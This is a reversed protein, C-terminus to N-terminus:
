SNGDLDAAPNSTYWAGTLIFYDGLNMTNSNDLDGARLGNASTFNVEAVSITFTVPLRTRLHWVTKASLHALGLLAHALSFNATSNTFNLPLSWTALADGSIM